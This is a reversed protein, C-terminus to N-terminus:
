ARGWSVSARVSEFWFIQWSIPEFWFQEAAPTAPLGQSAPKTADNAPTTSLDLDMRIPRRLTGGISKPAPADTGAARRVYEHREAEALRTAEPSDPAPRPWFIQIGGGRATVPSQGNPTYTWDASFGVYIVTGKPVVVSSLETQTNWPPLARGRGDLQLQDNVARVCCMFWPSPGAGAGHVRFFEVDDKVVVRWVRRDEFTAVVDYPEATRLAESAELPTLLRTASGFSTTMARVRQEQAQQAPTQQKLKLSSLVRSVVLVGQDPVVVTEEKPAPKPAERIARAVELAGRTLRASAEQETEPGLRKEAEEYQRDLKLKEAPHETLAREVASVRTPAGKGGAWANGALALTFLVVSRALRNM